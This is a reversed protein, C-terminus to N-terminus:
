ALPLTLVFRAGGDAPDELDLAGGCAEARWRAVYLGLGPGCEGAFPAFLQARDALAVGPGNDTVALRVRGGDAAMSVVITGSPHAGVAREANLVLNAVLRLLELAGANVPLPEPAPAVSLTIRSRGLSARRLAVAREVVARLDVTAPTMAPPSAPVRPPDAALAALELLGSAAREAQLAITRARTRVREPDLPQVELLEANGSIIQLANRAEHIANSLLRAATTLRNITDLREPPLPCESM